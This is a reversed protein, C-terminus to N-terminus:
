TLNRDRHIRAFVLINPTINDTIFAYIHPSIRLFPKYEREQAMHREFAHCMGREHICHM